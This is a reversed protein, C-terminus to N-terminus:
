DFPFRMMGKKTRDPDRGETQAFAHLLALVQKRSGVAMQTYMGHQVNVPSTPIHPLRETGAGLEKKKSKSGFHWGELSRNVFYATGVRLCVFQLAIRLKVSVSAKWFFAPADPSGDGPMHKKQHCRVYVGVNQYPFFTM